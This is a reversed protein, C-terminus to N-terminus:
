AQESAPGAAQWCGAADAAGLAGAAVHESHVDSLPSDQAPGQLAEDIPARPHMGYLLYYFPTSGHAAHVSNNYAFELVPLLKVWNRQRADVYGRLMQEM